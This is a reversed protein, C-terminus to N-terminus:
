DYEKTKIELRNLLADVFRWYAIIPYISIYRKHIIIEETPYKGHGQVSITYIYDASKTSKMADLIQSTLVNDRAWNKPSRFLM